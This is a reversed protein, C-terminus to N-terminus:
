RSASVGWTLTNLPVIDITVRYVSTDPDNETLVLIANWGPRVVADVVYTNSEDTNDLAVISRGENSYFVGYVFRPSSVEPELDLTEEPDTEGHLTLAVFMPGTIDGFGAEIFSPPFESEVFLNADCLIPHENLDITEGVDGILRKSTVTGNAEACFYEITVSTYGPFESLDIPVAGVPEFQEPAPSSPEPANPTSSCAVLLGSLAIVLLFRKM